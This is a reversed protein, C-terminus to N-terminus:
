MLPMVGEVLAWYRDFGNCQSSFFLISLNKMVNSSMQFTASSTFSIIGLTSVMDNIMIHLSVHSFLERQNLSTGDDVICNQDANSM